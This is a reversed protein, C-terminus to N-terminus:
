TCRPWKGAGSSHHWQGRAHHGRRRPDCSCSGGQPVINQPKTARFTEIFIDMGTAVMGYANGNLTIDIKSGPRVQLDPRAWSLVQIDWCKRPRPQVCNVQSGQEPTGRGQL